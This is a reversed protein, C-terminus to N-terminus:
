KSYSVTLKYGDGAYSTVQGYKNFKVTLDGCEYKFTSGAYYTANENESVTYFVVNQTFVLTGIALAAMSNVEPAWTYGKTYKINITSEGTSSKASGKVTAKVYPSDLKAAEVAKEKFTAFDTKTACSCLSAVFGLALLGKFFKKM